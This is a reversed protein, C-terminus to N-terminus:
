QEERLSGRRLLRSVDDLAHQARRESELLRVQDRKVSVKQVAKEALRAASLVNRAAETKMQALPVHQRLLNARRHLKEIYGHSVAIPALQTECDRKTPENDTIAQECARVHSNLAVQYHECKVLEQRAASVAFRRLTALTRLPDRAM